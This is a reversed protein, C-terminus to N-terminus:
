QSPSFDTNYRLVPGKTSLKRFTDSELDFRFGLVKARMALSHVDRSTHDNRHACGTIIMERMYDASERYVRFYAMEVQPMIDFLLARVDIADRLAQLSVHRRQVSRALDVDWPDPSRALWDCEVVDDIVQLRMLRIPARTLEGFRMQTRLCQLFQSAKCLQKVLGCERESAWDNMGNPDPPFVASAHSM